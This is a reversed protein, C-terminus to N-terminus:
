QISSSLLCSRRHGNTQTTCSHISKINLLLMEQTIQSPKAYITVFSTNSDICALCFDNYSVPM